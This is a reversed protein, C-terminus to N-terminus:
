LVAYKLWSLLVLEPDFRVGGEVEIDPPGVSSTEEESKSGEGWPENKEV